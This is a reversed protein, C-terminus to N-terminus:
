SAKIWRIGDRTFTASNVIQFSETGGGIVQNFSSVVVQISSGQVRGKKEVERGSVYMYVVSFVGQSDPRGIYISDVKGKGVDSAKIYLGSELGSAAYATGFIM